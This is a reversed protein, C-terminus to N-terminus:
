VEDPLETPSCEEDRLKAVGESGDATALRPRKGPSPTAPSTEPLETPSRVDEDAGGADAPVEAFAECYLRAAECFAAWVNDTGVMYHWQGARIYKDLNARAAPTTPAHLEEPVFRNIHKWAGEARQCGAKAERTSGTVHNDIVVCNRVFQKKYHNVAYHEIFGAHKIVEYTQAGDTMLNAKTDADFLNNCTATWHKQCLPPVRAVETSFTVGLSEMHVKSHSGRQMVILWPYWYYTPVGDVVAFWKKFSKEDAEIDVTMEPHGGFKAKEQRRLADMSMIFIAIDFYRHVTSASLGTLQVAASADVGNACCFFLFIQLSASTAGHGGCFIPSGHTVSVKKTCTDCRHHLVDRHINPSSTSSSQQLPSLIGGCTPAPCTTGGLPRILHANIAM